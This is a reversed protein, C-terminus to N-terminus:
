GANTKAVQSENGSLQDCRHRPRGSLLILPRASAGLKVLGLKSLSDVTALIIVENGRPTWGLMTVYVLSATHAARSARMSNRKRSRRHAKKWRRLRHIEDLYIPNQL